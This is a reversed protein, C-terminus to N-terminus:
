PKRKMDSGNIVATGRRSNAPGGSTAIHAGPDRFNKFQQGNLAVTSPPVPLSSHRITKGPANSSLTLGTQHSGPVNQPAATRLDKAAPTKASRLQRSPTPKVHSAAPRRNRTGIKATAFGKGNRDPYKGMQNEQGRVQTDKSGDPSSSNASKENCQSLTPEQAQVSRSGLSVGGALVAWFILPLLVPAKSM